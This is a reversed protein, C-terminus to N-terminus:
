ITDEEHEVNLWSQVVPAETCGRIEPDHYYECHHGRGCIGYQWFWCHFGSLNRSVFPFSLLRERPNRGSSWRPISGKCLGRLAAVCFKTCDKRLCTGVGQDLTEVGCNAGLLSCTLGLWTVERSNPVLREKEGCLTSESSMWGRCQPLTPFETEGWWLVAMALPEKDQVAALTVHTRGTVPTDGRPCPCQEPSERGANPICFPAYPLCFACIHYVLRKLAIRGPTWLCGGPGLCHRLLGSPHVLEPGGLHEPGATPSIM